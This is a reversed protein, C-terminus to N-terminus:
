RTLLVADRHSWEQGEAAHLLFEAVDARSIRDGVKRTPKDVARYRGTHRGNTLIAPYVLTWDLASARILGDAVAKDAFLKSMLLKIALKPLAAIDPETRGSGLASLVVVRTVGTAEAAPVLARAARGALDSKFDKGAGLASILADSGDLARKLDDTRTADGTVVTVRQDGRQPLKAPDRVLVTITHGAKLAQTLVQQGTPGTAGLLTLHM